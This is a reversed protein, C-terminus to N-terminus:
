QAETPNAVTSSAAAKQKAIVAKLHRLTDYAIPLDKEKRLIFLFSLTKRATKCYHKKCRSNTVSVEWVLNESANSKVLQAVIQQNAKQNEM